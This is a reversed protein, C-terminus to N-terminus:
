KCGGSAFQGSVVKREFPSQKDPLIPLRTPYFGAPATDESSAFRCCNRLVTPSVPISTVTYHNSGCILPSVLARTFPVLNSVTVAVIVLFTTISTQNWTNLM